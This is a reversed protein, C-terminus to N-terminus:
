SMGQTQGQTEKEASDDDQMMNEDWYDGFVVLELNKICDDAEQKWRPRLSDVYNAFEKKGKALYEEMEAKFDEDSIGERRNEIFESRTMGFDLNEAVDLDIRLHKALVENNRGEYESGGYWYWGNEVAHLPEGNINSLHLDALPRLSPFSKLIVDHIAGCVEPGSYRSDRPWLEGTLSFYPLKNGNIYHLGGFVKLRGGRGVKILLEKKTETKM